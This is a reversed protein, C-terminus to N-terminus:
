SESGGTAPEEPLFCFGRMLFRTGHSCSRLRVNLISTSLHSLHPPRLYTFEGLSRNRWLQLQEDLAATARSVEQSSIDFGCMSEMINTVRRTSVGNLYMEAMAIALARESRLGKVLCSPYFSGSRVQPVKLNLEGVRTKLTRDKFGNAHDVREESREYPGVGLHKRKEALM